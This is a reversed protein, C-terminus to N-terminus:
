ESLRQPERRDSQRDAHQERQARRADEAPADHHQLREVMQCIDPACQNDHDAHRIADLIGARRAARM